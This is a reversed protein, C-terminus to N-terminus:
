VNYELQIIVCIVCYADIPRFTDFNSLQRLVSDITCDVTPNYGEERYM